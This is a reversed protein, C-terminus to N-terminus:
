WWRWWPPPTAEMHSAELVISLHTVGAFFNLVLLIFFSFIRGSCGASSSTSWLWPTSSSRSSSLRRSWLSPSGTGEWGIWGCAEEVTWSGHAVDRGGLSGGAVGHGGLGVGADGEEFTWSDHGILSDGADGEEM